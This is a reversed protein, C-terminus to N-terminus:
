NPDIEIVIDGLGETQALYPVSFDFNLPHIAM